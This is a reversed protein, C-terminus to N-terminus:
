YKADVSALDDTQLTTISSVCSPNLPASPAMITTYTAGGPCSNPATCTGSIHTGTGPHEFGIAHGLEHTATWRLWSQTWSSCGAIGTPASRM